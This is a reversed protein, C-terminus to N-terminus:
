GGNVDGALRYGVGVETLLYRPQAPNTELKQRLQNMYRAFLSWARAAGPGWVDKLLQRHTMVRGANKTMVSLLRFENRTLHVTKGAVSVQRRSLDVTLDGLRFVPDGTEKNM